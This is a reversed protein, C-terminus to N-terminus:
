RLTFYGSDKRLLHSISMGATSNASKAFGALASSTPSHVADCDQAVAEISTTSLVMIKCPGSPPQGPALQIFISVVIGASTSVTSKVQAYWVLSPQHYSGGCYATFPAYVRSVCCFLEVPESDTGTLSPSMKVNLCYETSV